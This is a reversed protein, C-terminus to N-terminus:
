AHLESQWATKDYSYCKQTGKRISFVAFPPPKKQPPTTQKNRLADNVYIGFYFSNKQHRIHYRLKQKLKKFNFIRQQLETILNM